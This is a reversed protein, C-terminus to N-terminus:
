VAWRTDRVRAIVSSVDFTRAREDGFVVHDHMAEFRGTAVVDLGVLGVAEGLYTVVLMCARSAGVSVVPIIAGDVLALGALEPPAGPIPGIPPVSTVRLAVTAPLFFLEADVRFLVGGLM